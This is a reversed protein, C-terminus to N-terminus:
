HRVVKPREADTTLLEPTEDWPGTLILSVQIKGDMSADATAGFIINADESVTDHVM